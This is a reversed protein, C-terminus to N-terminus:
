KIRLIYIYPIYYDRSTRAQEDFYRRRDIHREQM